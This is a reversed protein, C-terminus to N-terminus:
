PKAEAAQRLENLQAESLFTAFKWLGAEQRLMVYATFANRRMGPWAVSDALNVAVAWAQWTSGGDVQSTGELVVGAAEVSVQDAAVVAQATELEPWLVVAIGQDLLAQGEVTAFPAQRDL